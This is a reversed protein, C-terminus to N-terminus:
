TRGTSDKLALHGAIVNTTEVYGSSTHGNDSFCDSCAVGFDAPPM